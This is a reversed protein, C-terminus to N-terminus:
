DEKLYKILCERIFESMSLNLEGSKNAILNYLEERLNFTISKSKIKKRKM